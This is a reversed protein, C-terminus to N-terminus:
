KLKISHPQNKPNRLQFCNLNVIFTLTVYHSKSHFQSPSRPLSSLSLRQLLPLGSLSPRPRLAALSSLPVVCLLALAVLTGVLVVVLSPALPVCLGLRVWPAKAVGCVFLMAACSRSPSVWEVLENGQACRLRCRGM